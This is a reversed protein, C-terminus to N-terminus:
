AFLNDNGNIRKRIGLLAWVKTINDIIINSLANGVNDFQCNLKILQCNVIKKRWIKVVETCKKEFNHIKEYFHLKKMAFQDNLAITM